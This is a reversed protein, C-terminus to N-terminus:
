RPQKRRRRQRPKGRVLECPMLEKRKPLTKPPLLRIPKQKPTLQRKQLTTLLTRFPRGQRWQLTQRPTTKPSRKTQLLQTGCPKPMLQPRTMPLLKQMPLLWPMPLHRQSRLPRTPRPRLKPQRRRLPLSMLLLDSNGVSSNSTRIVLTADSWICM